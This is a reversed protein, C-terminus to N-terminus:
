IGRGNLIELRRLITSKERQTNKNARIAARTHKGRLVRRAINAKKEERVLDAIFKKLDRDLKKLVAALQKAEARRARKEATAHSTTKM